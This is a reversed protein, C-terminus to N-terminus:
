REGEAPADYWLTVTALFMRPPGAAFHQQSVLSPFGTTRFSSAYNYVAVKNRRDMLNTGELGLEVFRYRVRVAADTTGYAPGLQEFPLPRPAVYSMGAAVSWRVEEGGALRATRRLSADLRAVWRPVYPLRVGAGLDLLGAGDEPLVAEAYTLSSQLDLGASSELRAAGLFGFRNSAGIPTNRGATEDFVLDREVHTHYAITRANLTWNRAGIDSVLGTELARV